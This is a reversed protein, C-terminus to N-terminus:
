NDCGEASDHPKPTNLRLGEQGHRQDHHQGHREQAPAVLGSEARLVAAHPVVPPHRVREGGSVVVANVM